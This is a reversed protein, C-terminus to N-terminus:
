FIMSGPKVNSGYLAGELVFNEPRWYIVQSMYEETWTKPQGNDVVYVLKRFSDRGKVVVYHLAASGIGYSDYLPAYIDRVGSGGWSILIITPKNNQINQMIQRMGEVPNNIQKYQLSPQWDRLKSSLSVPDIGMNAIGTQRLFNIVHTVTNVAAWVQSCSVDKNYFHLLGSGSSSSCTSEGCGYFGEPVNVIKVFPKLKDNQNKVKVRIDNFFVQYGTGGDVGPSTNNFDNGNRDGIIRAFKACTNYDTGRIQWDESRGLRTMPRSEAAETPNTKPLVYDEEHDTDTYNIECSTSTYIKEIEEGPNGVYVRSERHCNAETGDPNNPWGGGVELANFDTIAWIENKKRVELRVKLNVKPGHGFFDNDGKTNSKKSPQLWPTQAREIVRQIEWEQTTNGTYNWLVPNEGNGPSLSGVSIVKNNEALRIKHFGSRLLEIKWKQTVGANVQWNVLHGGNTNRESYYADLAKGSMANKIIYSGAGDSEIIWKQNRYSSAIDWMVIRSGDQFCGTASSNIHSPDGDAGDIIKDGYAMKIMYTGYPIEDANATTFLCIGTLLSLLVKKMYNLKIPNILDKM